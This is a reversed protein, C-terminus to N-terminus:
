KLFPTEFNGSHLTKTKYDFIGIEGHDEKFYISDPLLSGPFDSAPLAHSQNIGISMVLGDLSDNLKLLKQEDVRHVDFAITKADMIYRTVMFLQNSHEAFVVYRIRRCWDKETLELDLDLDLDDGDVDDEDTATWDLRPNRPDRLDWCEVTNEDEVVSFFRKRATSYIFDDYNRVCNLGYHEKYLAGILTWEKSRRGPCCFALRRLDGFGCSMLARCEKEDPSCSIIVKSPPKDLPPTPLKIRRGSHLNSLFLDGEEDNFSAVWGHSWGVLKDVTKTKGVLGPEEKDVEFAFEALSYFSLVEEKCPSYSNFVERVASDVEVVAPSPTRNKSSSILSVIEGKCPSYSKFVMRGQEWIPPLIWPGAWGLYSPSSRRKTKRLFDHAFRKGIEEFEFKKAFNFFSNTVFEGSSESGFKKIMQEASKRCLLRVLISM